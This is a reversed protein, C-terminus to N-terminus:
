VAGYRMEVRIFQRRHVRYGGEGDHNDYGALFFCTVIGTSLIGDVGLGTPLFDDSTQYEASM